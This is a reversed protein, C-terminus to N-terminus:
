RGLKKKSLRDRCTSPIPRTRRRHHVCQPSNRVCMRRSPGDELDPLGSAGSRHQSAIRCLAGCPEGVERIDVGNEEQRRYRGEVLTKSFVLTDVTKFVSEDEPLANHLRFEELFGDDYTLAHSKTRRRHGIEYQNRHATNMFLHSRRSFFSWPPMMILLYM